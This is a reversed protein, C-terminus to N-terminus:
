STTVTTPLPRLVSTLESTTFSAQGAPVRTAARTLFEPRTFDQELLWSAGVDIVEAFGSPTQPGAYSIRMTEGVPLCLANVSVRVRASRNPLSGHILRSDYAVAHGAPLALPVAFDRWIAESHEEMAMPLGPGRAHLPLRHSGPVVHLGGNGVDTDDLAIWVNVSAARREDVFSWDRHVPVTGVGTDRFNHHVHVLGEPVPPKVVYCLFCPEYTPLIRRLSAGLRQVLDEHIRQRLRTECFLGAHFGVIAPYELAAFAYRLEQLEHECLLAVVALGDDRLQEDIPRVQEDSM